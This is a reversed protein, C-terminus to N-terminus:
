KNRGSLTEPDRERQRKREKEGRKRKRKRRKEREVGHRQGVSSRRREMEVQDIGEGGNREATIRRADAQQSV